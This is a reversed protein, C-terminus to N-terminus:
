KAEAGRQAEQIALHRVLQTIERQLHVMRSYFYFSTFLFALVFFYLVVDAGRGIGIKHALNTTADPFAIALGAAIWIACRFLWIGTSPTRRRRSTCEWLLLAGLVSITLWQFFNWELPNM